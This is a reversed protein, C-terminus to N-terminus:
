NPPIAPMFLEIENELDEGSQLCTVHPLSGHHGLLVLIRMSPPVKTFNEWLEPLNM